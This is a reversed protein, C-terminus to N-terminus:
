SMGPVPRSRSLPRQSRQKLVTEAPCLGPSRGYLNQIKVDLRLRAHRTHHPMVVPPKHDGGAVPPKRSNTFDVCLVPAPQFRQDAAAIRRSISLPLEVLIAREVPFGKAPEQDALRAFGPRTVRGPEIQATTADPEARVACPRYGIDTIPKDEEIARGHRQIMKRAFLSPAAPWDEDARRWGVPGCYVRGFGPRDSVKGPADTTQPFEVPVHGALDYEASCFLCLVSVQYGTSLGKRATESFDLSPLM